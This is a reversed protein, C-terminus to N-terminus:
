NRHDSFKEYGGLFYCGRSTGWEPTTLFVGDMEEEEEERSDEAKQSRREGQDRGDKKGELCCM